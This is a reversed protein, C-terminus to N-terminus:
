YFSSFFSALSVCTNGLIFSIDWFRLKSCVVRWGRSNCYCCPQWKIYIWYVWCRRSKIHFPRARELLAADVSSIYPVSHEKCLAGYNKAICTLRDVSNLCIVWVMVKVFKRKKRINQCYRKHEQSLKKIKANKLPTCGADCEAETM